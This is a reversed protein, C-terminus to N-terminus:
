RVLQGARKEANSTTANRRQLAYELGSQLTARTTIRSFDIGLGVLTQAIEPSIGVLLSECGLLQAAQISRVLYSAVSTDVVPVGTIDLIVVQASYRAIAELLSEMVQGARRSDMGGILPLLLISDWVQIVPVSLQELLSNQAEIITLQDMLETEKSALESQKEILRAELRAIEERRRRIETIDIIIGSLGVINGQADRMPFKRTWITRVIGDAGTAMEENERPQGSGIVEDDGRWFIEAQEPPWLDPDSHGIIAQYPHGLLTCFAQNCAIWRHQLDKVFIPDPITDLVTQLLEFSAWQNFLNASPPTDARARRRAQHPTNEEDQM